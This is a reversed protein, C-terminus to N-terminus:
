SRRLGSLKQLHKLVDETSTRVVYMYREADELLEDLEDEPRDTRDTRLIGLLDLAEDAYNRSNEVGLHVWRLIDLVEEPLERVKVESM